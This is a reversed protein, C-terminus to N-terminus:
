VFQSLSLEHTYSQQSETDSFKHKIEVASLFLEISYEVSIVYQKSVHHRGKRVM